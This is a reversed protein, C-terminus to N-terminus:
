GKTTMGCCLPPIQQKWREVWCWGLSGVVGDGARGLFYLEFVHRMKRLWILPQSVGCNAVRVVEFDGRKVMWFVDWFEFVGL